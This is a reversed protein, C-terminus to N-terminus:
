KKNLKKQLEEVTLTIGKKRHIMKHCNSCVVVLDTKPNTTIQGTTLTGLPRIHHVEIFNEGWIGYKEKFNFLCVKCTCGHYKIADNRLSPDREAQVSIVVKKRGETKSVFDMIDNSNPTENFLNENYECFELYRHFASRLDQRNKIKKRYVSQSVKDLPFDLDDSFYNKEINKLSDVDLIEFISKTKPINFEEAINVRLWRNYKDFTSYAYPEGNTKKKSSLWKEFAVERTM